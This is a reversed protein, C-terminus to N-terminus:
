FHVVIYVFYGNNPTFYIKREYIKIKLCFRYFLVNICDFAAIPCKANRHMKAVFSVFAMNLYDDIVM